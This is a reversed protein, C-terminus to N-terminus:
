QEGAGLGPLQGRRRRRDGRVGRGAGGTAPHGPRERAAALLEAVVDSDLGEFLPAQAPAVPDTEFESDDPM